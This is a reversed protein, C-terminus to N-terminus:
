DGAVSLENLLDVYDSLLALYKNGEVPNGQQEFVYQAILDCIIAKQYNLNRQDRYRNIYDAASETVKIEVM